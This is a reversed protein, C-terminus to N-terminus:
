LCVFVGCVSSMMLDCSLLSLLALHCSYLVEMIPLPKKKMVLVLRRVCVWFVTRM